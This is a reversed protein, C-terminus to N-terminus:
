TLGGEMSLGGSTNKLLEIVENGYTETFRFRLAQQFQQMALAKNGQDLFIVGKYKIPMLTGVIWNRPGPIQPHHLRYHAHGSTFTSIYLDMNVNLPWTRQRM